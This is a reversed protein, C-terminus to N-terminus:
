TAFWGAVVESPFPETQVPSTVVFSWGRNNRVEPSLFTPTCRERATWSSSTSRDELRNVDNEHPPDPAIDSLIAAWGSQLALTECLRSAM